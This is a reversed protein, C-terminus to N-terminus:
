KNEKGTMDFNIFQQAAIHAQAEKVFNDFYGKAEVPLHEISDIAKEFQGNQVQKRALYLWSIGDANKETLHEPYVRFQSKIFRGFSETRSKSKTTDYFTLQAMQFQSAFLDKLQEKTRIGHASYDGLHSQIRKALENTKDAKLIDSLQAKFPLGTHINHILEVFLPTIRDSANIRETLSLNLIELERVRAQLQEMKKSDCGYTTPCECASYVVLEDEETPDEEVSESQEINLSPEVNDLVLDPKHVKVPLPTRPLPEDKLLPYLVAAEICLILIAFCLLPKFINKEKVSENPVANENPISTDTIQPNSPKKHTKQTM